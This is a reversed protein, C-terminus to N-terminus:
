PCPGWNNLLDLFDTIGVTGDGDFDPPGGPDTGWAELLDLFDTIAVSGDGDLDHPCSLGDTQQEYPGLDVQGVFRDNGDLDVTIQPPVASNDGQDICPSGSALRYDGNDPDAFLPQQSMNNSGDGSWGGMVNSSSVTVISGAPVGLEDPTDGWMISNSVQAISVVIYIAGGL